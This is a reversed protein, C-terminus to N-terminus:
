VPQLLLLTALPASLTAFMDRGRLVLSVVLAVHSLLCDQLLLLSLEVLRLLLRLSQLLEFLVFLLRYHLLLMLLLQVLVGHHLLLDLLM